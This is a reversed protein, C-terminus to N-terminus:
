EDAQSLSLLVILPELGAWPMPPVLDSSHGWGLGPTPPHLHCPSLTVGQPSMLFLAAKGRNITMTKLRGPSSLPAAGMRLGPLFLPM